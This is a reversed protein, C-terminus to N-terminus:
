EYERAKETNIVSYIIFSILGTVTAILSYTTVIPSAGAIMEKFFDLNTIKESNYNIIFYMIYSIVGASVCVVALNLLWKYNGRLFIILLVLLINFLTFFYIYKDSIDSKLIVGKVGTLDGLLEAQVESFKPLNQKIDVSVEEIQDIKGEWQDDNYETELLYEIEPRSMKLIDAIEESKIDIYKDSNLISALVGATYNLVLKSFVENDLIEVIDEVSKGNQKIKDYYKELEPTSILIEEVKSDVEIVQKASDLVIEPNKAFIDYVVESSTVKYVSVYYITTTISFFLLISVILTIFNKFRIM